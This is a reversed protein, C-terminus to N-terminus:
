VATFPELSSKTIENQREVTVRRSVMRRASELEVAASCRRRRRRRRCRCRRRDHRNVIVNPRSSLIAVLPRTSQFAMRILPCDNLPLAWPCPRPLTASQSAPDSRAARRQSTPCDHRWRSASCVSHYVTPTRQRDNKRCTRKQRKAFLRTACRNPVQSFFGSILDNIQYVM